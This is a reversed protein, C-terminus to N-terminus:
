TKLNWKYKEFTGNKSMSVLVEGVQSTQVFIDDNVSLPFSLCLNECKIRIHVYHVYIHTM